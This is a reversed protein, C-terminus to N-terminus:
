LVWLHVSILSRLSHVHLNEFTASAEYSVGAISIPHDLGGPLLKNAAEGAAHISNLKTVDMDLLYRRGDLHKAKLEPLGSSGATDRATAFVVNNKDKLQEIDTCNILISQKILLSVRVLETVLGLGIGRSSGTILYSPMTSAHDNSPQSLRSKIFNRLSRRLSTLIM